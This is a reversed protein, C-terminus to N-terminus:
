LSVKKNQNLPKVKDRKLYKKWLPKYKEAFVEAVKMTYRTDNAANHFNKGKVNTAKCLGELSDNYGSNNYKEDRQRIYMSARYTDIIKKTGDFPTGEKGKFLRETIKKEAAYDHVIFTDFKDYYVKLVDKLDTLTVMEAKRQHNSPIKRNPTGKVRYWKTFLSGNKYYTAGMETTGFRPSFEFDISICKEPNESIENLNKFYNYYPNTKIQTYAKQGLKYVDGRILPGKYDVYHEEKEIMEPTLRSREINIKSIDFTCGLDDLMEKYEILKFFLEKESIYVRRKSFRLEVDRESEFNQEILPCINYYAGQDNRFLNKQITESLTKLNYYNM